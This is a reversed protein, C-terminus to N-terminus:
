NLLVFPDESYGFDAYSSGEKVDKIQLTFVKMEHTQSVKAGCPLKIWNDWSAYAGGVPIISLWMKYGTPTDNEDLFWLYSDGPTVGGGDYKIMLGEKGDDNVILRTTGPDFVKFPAIMWFSDNCWLSWAKALYESKEGEQQINGDVLVDGNQNDLDLLVEINDWKVIAKNGQKDWLYSQRDAFNWALYKLTDFGDKDLADLMKKAMADAKAPSNGDPYKQSIMLVSITGIGVLAAIGIVTRKLLKKM